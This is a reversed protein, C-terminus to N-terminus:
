HSLIVHLCRTSRILIPHLNVTTLTSVKNAAIAFVCIFKTGVYFLCQGINNRESRMSMKRSAHESESLNYSPLSRAVSVIQIYICVIFCVLLPAIQLLLPDSVISPLDLLIAGFLILCLSLSMGIGAGLTARHVLSFRGMFVWLRWWAGGPM